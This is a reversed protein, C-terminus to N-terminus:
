NYKTRTWLEFAKDELLDRVTDYDNQKTGLWNAWGKWENTKRYIFEPHAPIDQKDPMTDNGDREWRKIILGIIEAM